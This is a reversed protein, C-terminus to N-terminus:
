TCAASVLVDILSPKSTRISKASIPCNRDDNKPLSPVSIPHLFTAGLLSLRRPPTRSTLSARSTKAEPTALLCGAIALMLSVVFLTARMSDDCVIRLTNLRDAIM